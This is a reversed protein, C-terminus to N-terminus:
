NIVFKKAVSGGRSSEFVAIYVGSKLSGLSLTGQPNDITATTIQQGIVNFVSLKQFETQTGLQYNLLGDSVGIQVAQRGFDTTSLLDNKASELIYELGLKAFKLAHNATGSVSYTDGPTHINPNRGSFSAEFPFAVDFGNQAWSFHDSCGYNCISTGYTFAHEGSANYTDMLDFVFTNLESSIYPDTMLYIDNASGNYNTMDMQMYAYVNTGSNNYDQAIEFSGVLGIEEAAFAMFEVTRKPRYDMELLVRFVEMITAIGSANDDAGPANDRDPATSDIHGGLIVYEDALSGGPITVVLSPMPTGTHNVIRVSIDDRGAATIEAELETKLDYVADTASGRNHYRTGYSQLNLIRAEINAASALPLAQEVLSSETLTYTFSSKAAAQLPKLQGLAATRSPMYVYGPGHTLINDHLKHAAFPSMYVAAQGSVARVITIDDPYEQYLEQASGLDMTAYFFNSEEQGFLATAPLALLLALLTIRKIM